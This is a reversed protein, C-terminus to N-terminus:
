VYNITLRKEQWEKARSVYTQLEDKIIKKRHRAECMKNYRLFDLKKNQKLSESSKLVYDISSLEFDLDRVRNQEIILNRKDLIAWTVAYQLSSFIYSKHTYIKNIKYGNQDPVINYEEFLWFTDGTQYILKDHLASLNKNNFLNKFSEFLKKENM